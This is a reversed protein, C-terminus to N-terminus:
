SVAGRSIQGPSEWPVLPLSRQEPRNEVYLYITSLGHGGVGISFQDAAGTRLFQEIQDSRSRSIAWEGASEGGLILLLRVQGEGQAALALLRELMSQGSESLRKDGPRFLTKTPIEFRLANIGNSRRQAKLGFLREYDLALQDLPSLTEPGKHASDQDPRAGLLTVLRDDFTKRVSDTAELTRDEAPISLAQLVIFFALLILFLSVFVGTTTDGGYSRERYFDEDIM